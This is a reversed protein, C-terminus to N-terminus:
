EDGVSGSVIDARKKNHAAYRILGIKADEVNQAAQNDVGSDMGSDPAANTDAPNPAMPEGSEYTNAQRVSEGFDAEAEESSRRSMDAAEMQQKYASDFAKAKRSYSDM